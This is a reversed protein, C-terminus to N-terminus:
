PKLWGPSTASGPSSRTSNTDIRDFREDQGAFRAPLFDLIEANDTDM